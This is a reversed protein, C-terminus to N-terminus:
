KPALAAGSFISKKNQQMLSESPSSEGLHGVMWEEIRFAMKKLETTMNKKQSQQPMFCFDQSGGTPGYSGSMAM